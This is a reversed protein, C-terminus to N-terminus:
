KVPRLLGIYVGDIQDPVKRGEKDGSMRQRETEARATFGCQDTHMWWSDSRMVTESTPRLPHRLSADDKSPRGRRAPEVLDDLDDFTM